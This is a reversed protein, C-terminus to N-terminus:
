RADNDKALQAAVLAQTEQYDESFVGAPWYDVNGADDVEIRRVEAAGEHHAVFYIAVAAHDLTGEAILRRIRLLFNESHTEILFRVEPRHVVAQAYLQALPGHAAPHLHLEPQEIVELTPRAPPELRDRARQVFVPLAQAVGTGTDVLNIKVTPEDRSTLLVEYLNGQAVVTVEWGPLNAALTENVADLLQGRHQFHDSALMGAAFEGASGIDSPMRTPLRHRRLPRSRFPGFYRLAPYGEIIASGLRAPAGSAAGPQRPDPLLGRLAFEHPPSVDDHYTIVYRNTPPDDQEWCLRIHEDTSWLELESVVQTRYEDINQVTAAFGALERGSAVTASLHISGHARNGFVLDTFSEIIEDDLKDLELPAAFATQVGSEIVLPARVLASKGANNQGLVITLPRLEVEQRERFCRYNAFAMRVLSM